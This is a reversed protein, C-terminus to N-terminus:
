SVPLNTVVVSSATSYVPVASGDYMRVFFRERFAARPVSFSRVPSQLVLETVGGTGFGVDSRRVEFGGGAPPELGSDVQLATTSAVTVQLGSLSAIVSGSLATVAVPQVVDVALGAGVTMSLSVARGQAFAARYTLLEPVAHGDVVTVAQVTRAADGAIVLADGVAVDTTAAAERVWEVRGSQATAAGTALALLAQAAAACDASSRAVPRVVHGAWAPVGPLALEARMLEAAADQMRAVARRTRRYRVTVLEGPQPVRGVDFSLVGASSMAYDAGTGVAGERRVTVTGDTATSTVWASGTQRLGVSGVSGVLAVSNVPAFICQAASMAMSGVYLVTALTSSALGLDQVEVVVQMPADVLGGGFTQLVGDVLARYSTRVRQMEPCHLRVRLAYRHGVAFSYTTAQEVGNVLAVLTQAGGTGRVRVGAVCAGRNVANSYLGLLVGDSGPTLLVDRAEAVLTGGMEVLSVGRLVTAGDYGNGGGMKLGGAGLSLYGGADSRQWVQANLVADDFGDSVLTGAGAARFPAHSLAFSSTTGDGRFLETVYAAAEREGSVTVYTALEALAVSAVDVEHLVVDSLAVRHVAAGVPQLVDSPVSQTLWASEVAEMERLGDVQLATAGAVVYGAFLEAGAADTVRVSARAAPVQLGASVVDLGAHCRTWDGRRRVITLPADARVAGTYDVPGLGDNDDIELKM